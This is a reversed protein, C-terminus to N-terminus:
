YSFLWNWIKTDRKKVKNSVVNVYYAYIGVMYIFDVLPGFIFFMLVMFLYSFKTLIYLFIIYRICGFIISYCLTSTVIGIKQGINSPLFMLAMTMILPILLWISVETKIYLESFIAVDYPFRDPFFMFFLSSVFNIFSILVIWMTLPKTIFKMKPVIFVTGLSIAASIFSFLASPYKGPLDLMYVHRYIFKTDIIETPVGPISYSFFYKATLSMLHTLEPYALIIIFDCVTILLFFAALVYKKIRPLKRSSRHYYILNKEAM